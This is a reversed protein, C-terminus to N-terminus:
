ELAVLRTRTLIVWNALMMAGFVGAGTALGDAFELSIAVLAGIAAYWLVLGYGVGVRGTCARCQTPLAPGLWMVRWATIGYDGCHPCKFVGQTDKYDSDDAM